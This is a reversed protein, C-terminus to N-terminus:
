RKGGSSPLGHRKLIRKAVVLKHVEDPGDYIRGARENRYFYALPTHDTVGLGGHAQIARDVVRMMVGAVYFKILSIQDRAERTGEKEITWAARLTLLKAADIEARSEAVWDQAFQNAGIPVGPAIERRVCYSCM